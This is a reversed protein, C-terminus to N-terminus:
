PQYDDYNRVADFIKERVRWYHEHRRAIVFRPVRFLNAHNLVDSVGEVVPPREPLRLHMKMFNYYFAKVDRNSRLYFFEKLSQGDHDFYLVELRDNGKKDRGARLEMVDPRMVHADKLAMADRLKKDPDVLTVDCECCVRAAIDNEAGCADCRKFRFRYGCAVVRGSTDEHAGQCQRGFHEVLEGMEDV